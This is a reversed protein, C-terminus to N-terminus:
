AGRQVRRWEHRIIALSMEAIQLARTRAEDQIDDGVAGTRFLTLLQDIAGRLEMHERDLPNVMLRIKTATFILREFHPLIESDAPISVRGDRFVKERVQTATAIQGCFNAITDRFEEIWRQRNASRVAARIQARAVYLTVLPGTISAALATSASIVSVLSPDIM